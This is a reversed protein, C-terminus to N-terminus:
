VEKLYDMAEVTSDFSQLASKLGLYLFNKQVNSSLNCFVVTGGIKSLNKYLSLFERFATSEILRIKSLDIAFKCHNQTLYKSTEERFMICTDLDFTNRNGPIEMLVVDDIIKSVIAKSKIVLM